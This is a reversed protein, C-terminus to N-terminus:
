ANKTLALWREVGLLVIFVLLLANQLGAQQEKASNASPVFLAALDQQSLPLNSNSLEFHRLLKDGLWEPLQGTEVRESTQPTLTENTFVVNREGLLQMPASVVYLTQPVPKEPVQDTLVWHYTRNPIPREDVTFDFSYVDALAKLAAKVTQKERENRYSVLTYLTGSHVPNSQFKLTPDLTADTTLKGLRNIFLKKNQSVNLYPRAQATSDTFTHLHFKAPVAIAPVDALAPSNMVYLHLDTNKVDLQNIATQISLVDPKQPVSTPYPNDDFTLLQADAWAIREGQKRAEALEFRFNDAVAVNPQVLHVKQITPPKTLGNLIPQALLLALLILLLCRIILLWINDLRLGRSQQQQKETLWQTAAWPLPKGQKQHWLHIVVPVVVALSGWLLFPEIFSM